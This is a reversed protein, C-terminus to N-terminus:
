GPRIEVNDRVLTLYYLKCEGRRLRFMLKNFNIQLASMFIMYSVIYPIKSAASLDMSLFLPSLDQITSIVMVELDVGPSQLQCDTYNYFLVLLLSSYHSTKSSYCYYPLRWLLARFKAVDHNHSLQLTWIDLGCRVKFMINNQTNVLVQLLRKSQM